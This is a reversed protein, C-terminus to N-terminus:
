AGDGEAVAATEYKAISYRPKVTQTVYADSLDRYFGVERLRTKFAAVNERLAERDTISAEGFGDNPPLRDVYIGYRERLFNLVEEIRMETTHFGHDGEPRLVAIQLLVELLRSDLVIRRKSKSVRPQALLAGRDNKMMLSDLSTVINRRHGPAQLGVIIEIYTEFDSLGMDVVAEIEPAIDDKANGGSTELVGALRSGFFAERENKHTPELLQLLDGMAFGGDPRILKGKKVLYEAFEDLKKVTYNAKVFGTIRGYHLEASREALEAMHSGPSNALDALMFVRYPCGGHPDGLVRPQMPCNGTSCTPDASRRKVLLPLLKFLRLHYLAMHFSLLIKLYEVMVSRPIYKQYVLLRIVDDAMLDASGVCVPKQSDREKSTDATDQKVQDCLAMLAQTEVDIQTSNDFKDTNLDHGPFFFRKLQDIANQGGSRAHYLTEYIHQAAGYDRCKKANRFRYTYGHLPRPAAIAQTSKGRNVIDMLHTELWQELVKPYQDFGGFLEPHELFENTFDAITVDITRRIRSPLGSHRIRALLATLVRDMEVQKFELYSTKTLRFDKDKKSLSM